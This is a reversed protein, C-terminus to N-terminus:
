PNPLDKGTFAQAIGDLEVVVENPVNSYGIKLGPAYEKAPIDNFWGPARDSGDAEHTCAVLEEANM